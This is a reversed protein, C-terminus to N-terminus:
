DGDARGKRFAFVWVFFAVSLLVLAAKAIEAVMEADYAAYDHIGM